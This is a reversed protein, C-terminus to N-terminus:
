PGIKGSRYAPSFKKCHKDQGKLVEAAAIVGMIESANIDSVPSDIGMSICIELLLGADIRSKEGSVSNITPPKLWPWDPKLPRLIPITWAWHCM